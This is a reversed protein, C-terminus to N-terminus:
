KHLQFRYKTSKPRKREKDPDYWWHISAPDIKTLKFEYESIRKEKALLEEQYERERDELEQIKKSYTEITEKYTRIREDKTEIEQELDSMRYKMNELHNNTPVESVLVTKNPPVSVQDKCSRIHYSYFDKSCSQNCKNCQIPQNNYGNNGFQKRIEMCTRSTNVHTRLVGKSKCTDNCYTCVFTSM